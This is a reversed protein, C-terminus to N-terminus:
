KGQCKDKIYHMLKATMYHSTKNSEFNFYHGFSLTVCATSNKEEKFLKM